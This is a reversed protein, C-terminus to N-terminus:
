NGRKFQLTLPGSNMRHNEQSLLKFQTIKKKVIEFNMKVHESDTIHKGKEETAMCIEIQFSLSM